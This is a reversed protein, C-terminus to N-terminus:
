MRGKRVIKLGTGQLASLVNTDAVPAGEIYLFRLKTANKLPSIDVVPTNRISLKELLKCTALPTLDTVQTDDLQLETLATMNALPAIDHVGTRGLDLRDMKTMKALPTIDSVKNISARLTVLQTLSALPTLDDLDGPGLFLDKMGTFLPMVCTDLQDVTAQSLNVSKIAKLDNQTITGGDRGLKRHVEADLAVNGHFDVEPGPSCVVRAKTPGSAADYIPPPAFATSASPKPAADGLVKSVLDEKDDCAPLPSVAFLAALGLAEPSQRADEDRPHRSDRDLDADLAAYVEAALADARDEDIGFAEILEDDYAAEDENSDLDCLGMAFAIKYAVERVESRALRERMAKLRDGRATHDSRVAFREFLADLDKDGILKKAGGGGAAIHRLSSAVSRFSEREEDTLVGDATTALYAAELIADVEGVSFDARGPLVKEVHVTLPTAM